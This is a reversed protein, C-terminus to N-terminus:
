RKYMPVNPMKNKDKQVDATGNSPVDKAATTCIPTCPRVHAYMPRRVHLSPSPPRPRPVHFDTGKRHRKQFTRKETRTVGPSRVGNKTPVPSYLRYMTPVSQTCTVGTCKRDEKEPTVHPRVRSWPCKQPGEQQATCRCYM